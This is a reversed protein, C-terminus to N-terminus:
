EHAIADLVKLRSARVAPVVAALVGFLVSVALFAVLSNIPISLVTLDKKMSERLLVGVLLGVGMGLAAGLLAISVSELTIMRRVRARTLGVARLLGFERTREYVSLGLTNVIGFVAIVIALALLGYIIYLLQNVQGRITEAYETKDQVSVIPLTEVIADLESHVAARDAGPAVNIALSNDSRPIDARKVVSLPMTVETTVPSNKFIGAVTLDITEDGSLLVPLTSGVTVDYKKAAGQSLIVNDGTLDETGKTITLPYVQPFSEDVAMAYTDQGDIRVPLGQMRTVVAVGDVQEMQNGIAVPFGQFTPSQVLFDSSFQDDVIKDYTASMSAALVGVASVVALGIMLAAATAGTRRPNRLANEGALRGTTGFIKGWLWRCGLLVPRGLIPAMVAVTIVWIVAGIGIMLAGNGKGVGQVGVAMLVGGLLLAVTGVIARRHLGSEQVALDNSMAAVPAVKGARRAPFWASLMTIAVGVVYAAIITSPTLVLVDGAIDLGLAGFLAALGRALLWGFVIGITSGVVAMLFAEILVSRTIQKRSAGLARLLASERVRQAVLITFTNAIILGGVLIAIIAFTTLFWTIVDLFQGIADQSEEVMDDGTVAEFGQPVLDHVADVLQRQTVGDEGTLAVSTYGNRGGLFVDQADKTTVLAVIAGATGGGNLNAEGVLTFTRRADEINDSPVILTIEDGLRYGGKEAADSGLTIEGPATPWEGADLVMIPEGAMNTTEGTNFVLTPAGQTSVVRGSKSLLTAGYGEVSGEARAVGPAEGLRAVERPTLLANTATATGQSQLQDAQRVTADPTTGELITDFTTGLGHSFTLVGALFGIGLVIALTSMLLRLKHAMLNRLTLHVM